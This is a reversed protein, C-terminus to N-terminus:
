SLKLIFPDKPRWTKLNLLEKNYERSSKKLGRM